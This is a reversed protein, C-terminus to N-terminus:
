KLTSAPIKIENVHQNRYVRVTATAGTIKVESLDDLNNIIKDDFGVIVDNPKLFDRIPSDTQSLNMVYVGRIADMGTASQEGLTELNKISWGYWNITPSGANKTATAPVPLIPRRAIQRLRPSKVGFSHMDFNRFGARFADVCDATLSYDGTTYDTFRIETAISASDVGNKRADALDAENLFINHDVEAGWEQLMIPQYATMVINRTFTDGSKKFWVHPHFTNNILINNEVTRYFGERLKLGGNLCLNNYIHYNSSGDDLDIDWGRDCRFRNNRITVTAGADALILEPHESAIRCMKNYDPHWYRDRGWSNFSGHDGTEKVTDFVDNSEIVHGGWTGESVNIGSRPVDYISNHSVVIDKSMSMEVGTIQKEYLGINHILNDAVTCQAPYLNNAPGPTFDMSDIDVHLGYQLSPSRVASIDGVFAVATAGIDHMHNGEVRGDRNFRSFFVANGGLNYLDCNEITCNSTNELLVAGGRYITWDSRLLPEYEEMFTRRTATLTLGGITVNRAPYDASPGKIEILHNLVPSEFTSTAVDEGPLPYYYLTSSNADFYWEGPADLEEFINEVMRNDPSLGMPRNNQHGGALILTSDTDKGEIRYHFDGWDHAHMAHLFGGEPNKWGRIRNASTADASTGNFRVATSDFDPYRAMSRIKGNVILMDPTRSPKIKAKMIGNKYPKWKASILEAGSITAKQGPYPKIELKSQPASNEPTIVLASDLRYTGELLLITNNGPQLKALEIAKHISALPADASGPAKDSGQPSVCIINQSFASQLLLGFFATTIFKAKM